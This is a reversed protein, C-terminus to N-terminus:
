KTLEKFIGELSTEQQRLGVLILGRDAALRFNHARPDAAPTATLRYQGVGLHDVSLVGPLTGLATADPLDHEFEAILTLHQATQGRLQALPSDAGIKGKNIIIVRDCLAEVEQMIHTSFLVTKDRGVTKIVQRIDPIDAAPHLIDRVGARM